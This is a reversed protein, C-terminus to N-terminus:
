LASAAAVLDSLTGSFDSSLVELTEWKSTDNGLVRQQETVLWRCLKRSTPGDASYGRVQRTLFEWPFRGLAPDDADLENAIMNLTQDVHYYYTTTVLSGDAIGDILDCRAKQPDAFSKWQDFMIWERTDRAYLKLLLSESRSKAAELMRRQETEARTAYSLVVTELAEGDLAPNELLAQYVEHDHAEDAIQAQRALDTTSRAEALLARRANALRQEEGPDYDTVKQTWGDYAPAFADLPVLQAAVEALVPGTLDPASLLNTLFSSLDNDGPIWRHGYASQRQGVVKRVLAPLCERIIAIRTADSVAPTDLFSVGIGELIGTSSLSTLVMEAAVPDTKVVTVCDRIRVMTDYSENTRNGMVQLALAYLRPTGGKLSVITKALAVTPKAEMRSSLLAILDDQGDLSGGTCAGALVGARAEDALLLMYEERTIGPRTLYAVRIPIETRSRAAAVLDESLDERSILAGLLKYDKTRLGLAWSARQVEASLPESSGAAVTLAARLDSTQEDPM